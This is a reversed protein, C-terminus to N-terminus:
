ERFTRPTVSGQVGGVPASSGGVPSHVVGHIAGTAADLHGIEFPVM